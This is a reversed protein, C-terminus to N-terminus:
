LYQENAKSSDNIDKNKQNETKMVPEEQRMIGLHQHTRPCLRGWDLGVSCTLNALGIVARWSHIELSRVELAATVTTPTTNTDLTIAPWIKGAALLLQM